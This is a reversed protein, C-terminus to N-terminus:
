LEKCKFMVHTNLLAPLLCNLMNLKFIPVFILLGFTYYVDALDYALHFDNPSIVACLLM